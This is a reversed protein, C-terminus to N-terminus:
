LDDGARNLESFWNEVARYLLERSVRVEDFNLEERDTHDLSSDGPGYAVMPINVWSTALTNMDSTGKKIIPKLKQSLVSNFAKNFAKFLPNTRNSQYGPTNRLIKVTFLESFLSEIQNDFIPKSKPSIRFNIVLKGFDCSSSTYYDIDIISSINDPDLENIYQRLKNAAIYLQDITSRNDKAASHKHEKKLNIQIKLLGFYGLTLNSFGSPEGIIVANASYNDRVFFGGKSSSVEEQVAGVVILKANKPVPIKRIVEIFNTFCGKADVCGRGTIKQSDSIVPWTYPVTDIHGLLLLVNNGSGKTFVINGAEDISTSINPFQCESKLFNSLVSEDYSVSTINVIQNLLVMDQPINKGHWVWTTEKNLSHPGCIGIDFSGANVGLNCARIKQKMRNSVLIEECEPYYNKITSESDNIDKLVGPTSTVFRLHSAKLDIALNSALMDADINLYNSSNVDKVPPCLCVIDHQEFLSLITDSKCSLYQGYLSDRIIVKKGDKVVKLPKGQKGLVFNNEGAIQAYLNYRGLKEFLKKLVIRKYAEVILDMDKPPCYRVQDGNEL